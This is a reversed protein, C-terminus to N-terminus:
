IYESKIGFDRLIRKSLNSPHPDGNGALLKYLKICIPLHVCDVCFTTGLEESVSIMTWCEILRRNEIVIKETQQVIPLYIQKPDGM